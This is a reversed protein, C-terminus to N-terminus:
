KYDGGKEGNTIDERKEIKLSWRKEIQLRRERTHKYYRGDERITPEERKQM